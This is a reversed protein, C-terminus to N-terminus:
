SATMQDIIYKPQASVTTGKAREDLLLKLQQPVRVPPRGTHLLMKRGTEGPRDLVDEAHFRVPRWGADKAEDFRLLDRRYQKTKLRHQEGDYEFLSRSAEDALDFRGIFRGSADHVVFQLKLGRLGSREGILRTLTEMRSDAGVQALQSAARFRPAGRYGRSQLAAVQLEAPQLKVSRDFHRTNESLLSDLAVVIERFPLQTSAQLIARLPMAVPIRGLHRYHPDEHELIRLWFTASEPPARHGQVGRRRFPSTGETSEIDIPANKGVYIPCGLVALATTHSFRDGPRMVPLFALAQERLTTGMSATSRVGTFPTKLKPNALAGRTIGRQAADRVRFARPGYENRISRQDTM